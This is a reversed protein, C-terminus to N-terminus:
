RLGREGLRDDGFQRAAAVLDLAPGVPDPEGAGDARDVDVLLAADDFGAGVGAAGGVREPKLIRLGSRM